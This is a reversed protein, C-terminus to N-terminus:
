ALQFREFPSPNHKPCASILVDGNLKPSRNTRVQDYDIGARGSSAFKIVFKKPIDSRM